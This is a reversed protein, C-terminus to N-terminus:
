YKQIQESDRIIMEPKGEWMGILGVLWIYQNRFYWEPQSTMEEVVLRPIVVSLDQYPFQDGIYLIYNDDDSSFYVEKVKGYVRRVERVYDLVDYASITEIQDGFGIDWNDQDPYYYMFRNFLYPTWILDIQLPRRYVNQERRLDISRPRYGSNLSVSRIVRYDYWTNYQNYAQKFDDSRRLNENNDYDVKYRKHTFVEDNQHRIVSGDDKTFSGKNEVYVRTVPQNKIRVAVPEVPRQVPTPRIQRVQTAAQNSKQQRGADYREQRKNSTSKQDQQQQQQAANTRQQQQQQQQQAANTRQQQQQQKQQAANSRQQQQQQQANARTEIRVARATKVVSEQKVNSNETKNEKGTEKKRQNNQPYASLGAVLIIALVIIRKM